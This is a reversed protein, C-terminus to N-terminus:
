CGWRRWWRASGRYPEDPFRHLKADLGLTNKAYLPMMVAMFPFICLSNSAMIGLMAITPRDQKVYDIGAKMGGTARQTEEEAVTGKARPAITALAIIMALFSAANAYFASAQGWGRRWSGVRWPRASRPAHRPFISRDVAIATVINDRDVLEPVLASASQADRVGGAFGLLLLLPSSTGSISATRIM